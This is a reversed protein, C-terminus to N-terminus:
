QKLWIAAYIAYCAKLHVRVEDVAAQFVRFRELHKHRDEHVHRVVCTDISSVKSPGPHDVRQMQCEDRVGQVPVEDCVKTIVDLELYDNPTNRSSV